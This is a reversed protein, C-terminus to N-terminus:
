EIIIEQKFIKNDVVQEIKKYLNIEIYNKEINKDIVFEVEISCFSSRYTKIQHIQNTEFFNLNTALVSCFTNYTSENMKCKIVNEKKSILYLKLFEALCDDIVNTITKYDFIYKKM